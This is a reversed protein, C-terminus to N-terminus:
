EDKKGAEEFRPAKSEPKKEPKPLPPLKELDDLAVQGSLIEKLARNMIDGPTEPVLQKDQDRKKVEVAWRIALPVLRYKDKLCDLLLKSLPQSAKAEIEAAAAEAEKKKKSESV